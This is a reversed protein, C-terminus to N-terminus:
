GRLGRESASFTVSGTPPLFLVRWSVPHKELRRVADVDIRHVPRQKDRVSQCVLDM